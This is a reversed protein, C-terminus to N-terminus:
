IGMLTDVFRFEYRFLNCSVSHTVTLQSDKTFTRNSNHKNKIFYLKNVM